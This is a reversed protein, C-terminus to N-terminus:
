PQKYRFTTELTQKDTVTVSQSLEGYREHRAVLTYTGAPVNKLVFSGDDGTVAFWPHDFVGVECVMWPHVDCKIEFIEPALFTIPDHGGPDMMAFNQQPNVTSNIHVNHMHEDSNRVMLPQGVQLVIVHPVYQADHQDLVVPPGGGEGAPADKLYVMVNKLTGNSNVLVSQDTVKTWFDPPSVVKMEPAPADFFVQGHITATGLPAAHPAPSTSQDSKGCGALLILIVFSSRHIIFPLRSSIPLEEHKM